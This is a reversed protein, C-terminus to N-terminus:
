SQVAKTDFSRLRVNRLRIEMGDFQKGAHVQFGLSGPGKFTDDQIAVVLKGNQWVKLESGRALVRMANWGDRRVTAPNKNVAIFQKGMCYVSGSLVGPFAPENELMDAQYASKPGAYRFWLGSNGPWKMKWEVEAEFDAWQGETMLDGPTGGPGQRGVICGDEVSWAAKGLEKWGALSRGDFLTTRRPSAAVAM